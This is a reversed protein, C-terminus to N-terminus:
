PRNPLWFGPGAATCSGIRWPRGPTWGIWGLWRVRVHPPSLLHHRRAQGCPLSVFADGSCYMIIGGSAPCGAAWCAAWGVV